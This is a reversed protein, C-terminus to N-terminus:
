IAIEVDDDGQGGEGASPGSARLSAPQGLWAPLFSGGSVPAAAHSEIEAERGDDDWAVVADSVADPGVLYRTVTDKGRVQWRMNNARLAMSDQALEGLRHRSESLRRSAFQGGAPGHAFSDSPAPLEVNSWGNEDPQAVLDDPREEAKCELQPQPYYIQTKRWKAEQIKRSYLIRYTGFCVLLAGAISPLIIILIFRETAKQQLAIATQNVGSSSPILASFTPDPEACFPPADGHLWGQQCLCIKGDDPHGTATSFCMGHGSCKIDHNCYTSCMVDYWGTVCACRSEEMGAILKCAGHGSCDKDRGTNPKGDCGSCTSNDGKCVGCHDKYNRSEPAGDCGEEVKWVSFLSRALTHVNVSIRHGNDVGPRTRLTFGETNWFWNRDSFVRTQDYDFSSGFPIMRSGLQDNAEPPVSATVPLTLVWPQRLTKGQPLETSQSFRIVEDSGPRRVQLFFVPGYSLPLQLTEEFAKDWLVHMIELQTPAEGVMDEDALSPPLEAVMDSASGEARWGALRLRDLRVRSTNIICGPLRLVVPLSGAEVQSVSLSSVSAFVDRMLRHRLKRLSSQTMARTAAHARLSMMRAAARAVRAGVDGVAGASGQVDYEHPQRAPVRVSLEDSLADAAVRSPPPLSLLSQSLKLSQLLRVTAFGNLRALPEM